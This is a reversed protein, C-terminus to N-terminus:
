NTVHRHVATLPSPCARLPQVDARKLALDPAASHLAVSIRRSRGAARGVPRRFALVYDGGRLEGALGAGARSPRSM